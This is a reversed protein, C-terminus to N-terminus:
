FRTVVYLSGGIAVIDEAIAIVYDPCGLSKVLRTRAGYGGFCGILSGILGAVSGSFASHAGAVAICAGCLSGLVVRAFLGPAATRDPASALKDGILELIALVTLIAVAPKAALFFLRSRGLDIWYLAAAWSVAAPPSLSRLGVFVGILLALFLPGM